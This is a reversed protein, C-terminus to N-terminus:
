DSSHRGTLFSPSSYYANRVRTGRREVLRDISLPGAGATGLWLLLSIYLFETLGFLSALSDVQSWQATGIAVTMTVILPVAALRTGLGLLLMSGCVFETSATLAANFGAAPLGLEAFFETVKQLDHLKGWGSQTFVLGVALRAVTPPLWSMANGVREALRVVADLFELARNM